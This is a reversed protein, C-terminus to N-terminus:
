IRSDRNTNKIYKKSFKVLYEIEQNTEIAGMRVTPLKNSKWGNLGPNKMTYVNKVGINHLAKAVEFGRFDKLCYAVVVDAPGIEKLTNQNIDRLLIKKAGPIHEEDFEEQERADVFLVQQGNAILTLLKNKDLVPVLSVKRTIQNTNPTDLNLLAVSGYSIILIVIATITNRLINLEM